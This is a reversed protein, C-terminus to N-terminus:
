RADGGHCNPETTHTEGRRPVEHTAPGRPRTAAWSGATLNPHMPSDTQSPPAPQTCSPRVHLRRHPVARNDDSQFLGLAAITRSILAGSAQVPRSAAIATPEASSPLGVRVAM